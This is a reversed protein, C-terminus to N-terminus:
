LCLRRNKPQEMYSYRRRHPIACRLDPGTAKENLLSNRTSIDRRSTNDNYKLLARWDPLAIRGVSVIPRATLRLISSCPTLGSQLCSGGFSLFVRRGREKGRATLEEVLGAVAAKRLTTGDRKIQAPNVAQGVLLTIKDAELLLKALRSAGDMRGTLDRPGRVEVIRQRAVGMTVVGETVLDVRETTGAMHSVPPVETWGEEPPPEMVLKAGLLRAAIEATTDGCIVRAGEETLFQALAEQDRRRDAPPGSWVTATRTPRVSMALIAFPSHRIAFRDSASEGIRQNALRVLAGALQEADCGTSTLRRISLAVDRWSWPRAGGRARIYSESVLALHDGAQVTFDCRRVLRGSLEEEAVPLLVFEGRRAMFLPPADIEVLGAQGDYKIRLLAVAVHEGAPLAALVDAVVGDMAVGASLSATIRQALEGSVGSGQAKVVAAVFQDESTLTSVVGATTGNGAPWVEHACEIWLRMHGGCVFGPLIYAPGIQVRCEDNRM